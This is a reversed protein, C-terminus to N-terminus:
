STVEKWLVEAISNFIPELTPNIFNIGKVYGGNKTGHGYRLLLVVPMGNSAINSNTWVLSYSDDAEQIEYKWSAATLGTDVPTAASLLEVGKKGYRDLTKYVKHNLMRKFFREVNKFSGGQTVYVLNRM